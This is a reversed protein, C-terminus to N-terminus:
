KLLEPGAFDMDHLLYDVRQELSFSVKDKCSRCCPFSDGRLILALHPARHDRAHTVLYLGAAPATQGARYNVAKLQARQASSIM